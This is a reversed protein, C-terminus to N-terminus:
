ILINSIDIRNSYCKTTYGNNKKNAFRVTTANIRYSQIKLCKQKHERYLQPKHEIISSQSPWNSLLFASSRAIM